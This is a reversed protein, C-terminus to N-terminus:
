KPAKQVNGLIDVWYVNTGDVAINPRWDQPGFSVNSAVTAVVGGAKPVTVLAGPQDNWPNMLSSVYVDNVAIFQPFENSTTSSLTVIAGGDKPVSMVASLSTDGRGFPGEDWNAWYVSTADVAIANAHRQRAALTVPTGGGRPARVVTGETGLTGPTTWYLNTGDAALAIAVYDTAQGTPALGSAVTVIDGGCKSVSLISQSGGTGRVWYVNDDDLATIGLLDVGAEAPGAALTVVGESVCSGDLTSAEDALRGGCGASLGFWPLPLL